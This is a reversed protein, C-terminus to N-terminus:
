MRRPLSMGNRGSEEDSEEDDFVISVRSELVTREQSEKGRGGEIESLAYQVDRERRKRKLYCADFIMVFALCTVLVAVTVGVGLKAEHSLGNNQHVQPDPPVSTVPAATTLASSQLRTSIYTSSLMVNHSPRTSFTNSLSPPSSSVRIFSTSLPDTATPSLVPRPRTSTSNCTLCTEKAEVIVGYVAWIQHSLLMMFLLADVFALM